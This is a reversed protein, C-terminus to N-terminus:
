RQNQVQMRWRHLHRTPVKDNILTNLAFGSGALALHFLFGSSNGTVINGTLLTAGTVYMFFGGVEGLSRVAQKWISLRRLGAIKNIRIEKGNSLVLTSDTIAKVHIKMHLYTSDQFDQPKWVFVDAPEDNVETQLTKFALLIKDGERITYSRNSQNDTLLLQRQATALWPLLFGASFLLVMKRM